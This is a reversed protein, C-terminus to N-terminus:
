GSDGHNKTGMLGWFNGFTTMLGGGGSLYKDLSMRQYAGLEVKNRGIKFDSLTLNESM